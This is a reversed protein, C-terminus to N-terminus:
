RKALSARLFTPAHSPALRRGTPRDVIRVYRREGANVQLQLPRGDVVFTHAGPAVPVAAYGDGALSALTRGDESVGAQGRGPAAARFFVVQAGNSSPVGLARDITRETAAREEAYAYAAGQSVIRASQAFAPLAALLLAGPLFVRQIRTNM